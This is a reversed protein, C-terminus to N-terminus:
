WFLVKTLIIEALPATSALISEDLNVENINQSIFDDYKNKNYQKM